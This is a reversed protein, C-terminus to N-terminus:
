HSIPFLKFLDSHSNPILFLDKGLIKSGKLRHAERFEKLSLPVMSLIAGDLSINRLYKLM